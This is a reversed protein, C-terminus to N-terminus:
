SYRPLGKAVLLAFARRATQHALIWKPHRLFTATDADGIEKIMDDLIIIMDRVAAAEDLDFLISGIEIEPRELETDDFFLHYVEDIDFESLEVEDAKLTSSIDKLYEILEARKHPNEIDNWTEPFNPMIEEGLGVM